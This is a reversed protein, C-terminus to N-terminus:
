SVFDDWNDNWDGNTGSPISYYVKYGPNRPTVLLKLGSQDLTKNAKYLNCVKCSTVCNTYSTPGGKSKPIVHDITVQSKTLSKGCYCCSFGDREFVARRVYNLVTHKARRILYTLRVTAPANSCISNHYKEPWSHLIEVKDKYILRLAKKETIFGLVEYNSNLLLVKKM